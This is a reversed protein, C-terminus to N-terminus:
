RRYRRLLDLARRDLKHGHFDEFECDTRPTDMIGFPGDINWLAWGWEEMWQFRSEPFYGSIRKDGNAMKTKCFMGLLNFGCWRVGPRWAPTEAGFTAQAVLALVACSMIARKM